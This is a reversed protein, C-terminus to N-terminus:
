LNTCSIAEGLTEVKLLSEKKYVGGGDVWGGVGVGWRPFFVFFQSHIVAKLREPHSSLPAVKYVGGNPLECVFVCVCVRRVAPLCHSLCRHKVEALRGGPDYTM